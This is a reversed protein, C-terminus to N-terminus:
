CLVKIKKYAQSLYGIYFGVTFIKMFIIDDVVM